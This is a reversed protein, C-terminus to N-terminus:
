LTPIVKAFDAMDTKTTYTYAFAKGDEAATEKEKIKELIQIVTHPDVGQEPIAIINNKKANGDEEVGALLKMAGNVEGELIGAIITNVLPLKRLLRVFDRAVGGVGETVLTNLAVLSVSTLLGREVVGVSRQWNTSAISQMVADVIDQVRDM